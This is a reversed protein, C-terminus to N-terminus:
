VKNKSLLIGICHLASHLHFPVKDFIALFIVTLLHRLKLDQTLNQFALISCQWIKLAIFKAHILLEGLFKCAYCSWKALSVVSSAVTTLFERHPCM